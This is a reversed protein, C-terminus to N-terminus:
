TLPPPRQYRWASYSTIASYSDLAVESRAARPFVDATRATKPAVFPTSSALNVPQQCGSGCNWAANWSPGSTSPDTRSMRCLHDKRRCYQCVDSRSSAYAQLLSAIPLLSSVLLVLTTLRQSLLHANGTARKM